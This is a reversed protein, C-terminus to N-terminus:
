QLARREKELQMKSKLLAARDQSRGERDAARIRETLKLIEEQLNHDRIRGMCSVIMAEAKEPPLARDDMVRESVRSRLAPDEIEALWGVSQSDVAESRLFAELVQKVPPSELVDVIGSELARARWDPYKLILALLMEETPNPKVPDAVTEQRRPEAPAAESPAKAREAKEELRGRHQEERLVRRLDGEHVGFTDAVLSVYTSQHLTDRCASLVPVLKKLAATRAEVDRGGQALLASALVEISPKASSLIAEFAEKGQKRVLTDPDEQAPLRVMYPALDAHLLTEASRCSASFGAPDGDFVTVVKKTFRKLIRAHSETLATGSAAVVPEVGRAVVSLVDFYGEVLVVEGRTQIARRAQELGYLIESKDYVASQRSNIYKPQDDKAIARAGFGHVKGDLGLIPFILRDRFLDYPGKPGEVILGLSVADGIDVGKRRLHETLARWENPAYGLRFRRAVDEPLERQTLYKAGRGGSKGWLTQEFFAAALENLELLRLHQARAQAAGPRREPLEVGTREALDELVEPFSKGDMKMLFDFIDGSAKCGFCHFLGKTSSVSFSPTKEAHFPCCGIFNSGVKKLTIYRGVCEVLDARQRIVEVAEDRTTLAM